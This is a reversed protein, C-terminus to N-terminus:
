GLCLRVALCCVPFLQGTYLVVPLLLPISLINNLFVATLESVSNRLAVKMYLVYATTFGCNALMWAYGWANFQLDGFAAVVSSVVMLLLSALVGAPMPQHFLFHDGIGTAVTSLSKFVTVMPVSLFRLALLNSVLMATFLVNLPLWRAILQISAAPTLDVRMVGTASGVGCVLVTVVSQWLTLFAPFHFGAVSSVMCKNSLTTSLSAVSYVVCSALSAGAPSQQLAATKRPAEEADADADDHLVTLSIIGQQPAQATTAM